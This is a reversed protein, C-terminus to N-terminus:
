FAPSASYRRRPRVRSYSGQGLLEFNDFDTRSKRQGSGSTSAISQASTTRSLDPAMLMALHPPKLGPTAPPSVTSASDKYSHGHVTTSDSREHSLSSAPHPEIHIPLLSSEPLPTPRLNPSGAIDPLGALDPVFPSYGYSSGTRSLAPSHIPTRAPTRMPVAQVSTTSRVSSQRSFSSSSSANRTMMLHPITVGAPSPRSAPSSHESSPLLLPSPMSSLKLGPSTTEEENAGISPQGQGEDVGDVREGTSVGHGTLPGVVSTRREYLTAM